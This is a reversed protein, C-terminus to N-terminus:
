PYDTAGCDGNPILFLRRFFVAVGHSVRRFGSVRRPDIVNGDDDCDLRTIEHADGLRGGFRLLSQFMNYHNGFRRTSNTIEIPQSADVTREFPRPRNPGTITVTIQAPATATLQVTRAPCRIERTGNTRTFQAPNSLSGDATLLGDPLIVYAWVPGHRQQLKVHDDLDGAQIYDSLTPVRTDFSTTTTAPGADILGFQVVDGELLDRERGELVIMPKHRTANVIAVHTKSQQGSPGGVFAVLGEFIVTLTAAIVNAHAM